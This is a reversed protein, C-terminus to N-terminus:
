YFFVRAKGRLQRIFLQRSDETHFTADLVLDRKLKAATKMRELMADYVAGKEKESYTRKSFMEKRVQDSNIYDAQIVEALRAAFYSKGSGPLGLVIVIM